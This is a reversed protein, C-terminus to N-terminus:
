RIDKLAELAAWLRESSADISQWDYSKCYARAADAIELLAAFHNRAQWTFEANQNLGDPATEVIAKLEEITM